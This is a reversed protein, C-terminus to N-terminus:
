GNIKEKEKKAKLMQIVNNLMDEKVEIAWSAVGYYHLFELACQIQSEDFRYAHWIDYTTNVEEYASVDDVSLVKCIFHNYIPNKMWGKNTWILYYNM